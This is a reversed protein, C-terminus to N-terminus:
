PMMDVRDMRAPLGRCSDVWVPSSKPVAAWLTIATADSSIQTPEVLMRYEAACSNLKDLSKNSTAHTRRLSTMLIRQQAICCALYKEM